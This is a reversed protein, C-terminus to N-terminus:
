PAFSKADAAKVGALVVPAQAWTSASAVKECQARTMSAVDCHWGSLCVGNTKLMQTGCSVVRNSVKIKLQGALHYVCPGKKPPPKAGGVAGAVKKAKSAAAKEAKRKKGASDVPPKPVAAKTPWVIQKFLGAEKDM